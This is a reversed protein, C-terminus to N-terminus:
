VFLSYVFLVKTLSTATFMNIAIYSESVQTLGSRMYYICLIYM